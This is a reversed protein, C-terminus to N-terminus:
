CFFTSTWPHSGGWDRKRRSLTEDTTATTRGEAWMWFSVNKRELAVIEKRQREKENRGCTRLIESTM